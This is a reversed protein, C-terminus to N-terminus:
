QQSNGRSLSMRKKASGGDEGPSAAGTDPSALGGSRSGPRGTSNSRVLGTGQDSIRRVFGKLSSLRKRTKGGKEEGTPTGNHGQSSNSISESLNPHSPSRSPTSSGSHPSTLNSTHSISRPIASSSVPRERTPTVAPRRPSPVQDRAEESPHTSSRAPTSPSPISVAEPRAEEGGKDLLTSSEEEEDENAREDRPTQATETPQRTSTPSIPENEEPITKERTHVKAAEAYTAPEENSNDEVEYGKQASAESSAFASAPVFPAADPRLESEQPPTTTVANDPIATDVLLGEKGDEAQAVM